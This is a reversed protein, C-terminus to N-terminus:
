EETVLGEPLVKHYTYEIGNHIAHFKTDTLEYFTIYGDIDFGDKSNPLKAQWMSQGYILVKGTFDDMLVFRLYKGAPSLYDAVYGDEIRKARFKETGEESITYECIFSDDSTDYYVYFSGDAFLEEDSFMDSVPVKLAINYAGKDDKSINVDKYGSASLATKLIDDSGSGCASVSVFSAEGSVVEYTDILIQSSEGVSTLSASLIDYFTNRLESVNSYARAFTTPQVYENKQVDPAPTNETDTDPKDESNKDNEGNVANENEEDNATEGFTEKSTDSLLDTRKAGCSCLLTLVCTIAIFLAIIKRM